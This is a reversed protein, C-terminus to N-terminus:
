CILVISSKLWDLISTQKNLHWHIIWINYGVYIITNCYIHDICLIQGVKKMNAGLSPYPPRNVKRWVVPVHIHEYLQLIILADVLDSPQFVCVDFDTVDSIPWKLLTSMNGCCLRCIKNMKDWRYLHNVHPAVGLSNMWNRFTREERSEGTSVFTNVESIM